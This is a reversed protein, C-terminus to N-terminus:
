ASSFLGDILVDDDFRRIRRTVFRKAEQVGALNLSDIVPVADGGLFLPALFLCVQDVLGARLFSGHVQSGGEVLLSNIQAAGLFRLVQLLDLCGDRGSDIRIIKAGAKELADAKAPDAQQSCFIWTPATSQQRLMKAGPALRLKGDLVVRLPDKGKKGKLRTTLSPDDVLATGAGILIADVRNRIRHVEARSKACTIWSSQGNAAAIRGDLSCGAKMIVWPLGSTIHKIFPYNLERCEDVLVETRVEIGNSQLFACGSGAVLPNPDIMGVVVRKIGSALIARTCPPTRGTHNCPELTVYITAGRANEGAEQLAHIEAHPTGAKKHYGRGIVRGDQVVVSGVAPNPSTRGLGKRAERLAMRM